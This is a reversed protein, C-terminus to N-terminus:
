VSTVETTTGQPTISLFSVPQGGSGAHWHVEGAPILVVDETTMTRQEHEIAVIGTGSTVVLVQDQTHRHFANQAGPSFTMLTFNLQQSDSRSIVPRITVPAGPFLAGTVHSAAVQDMRIVRM